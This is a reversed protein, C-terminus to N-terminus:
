RICKGRLTYFVKEVADMFEPLLDLGLNETIQYEPVRPLPLSHEEVHGFEDARWVEELQVTFAPPLSPPLILAVKEGGEKWFAIWKSWWSALTAPSNEQLVLMQTYIHELCERLYEFTYIDGGIGYEDILFGLAYLAYRQYALLAEEWRGAAFHVDGRAAQIRGLAEIDKPDAKLITEEARDAAQASKVPQNWTAYLGALWVSIWGSYWDETGAKERYRRVLSRDGINKAQHNLQDYGQGAQYFADAASQYAAEARTDHPNAAYYAEAVYNQILGRLHLRVPDDKPTNHLNLRDTLRSLVILTEDVWDVAGHQRRQPVFCSHFENLLDVIKRSRSSLSVNKLDELLRECFPFDIYEGWWFFADLYRTAIEVGADPTAALHHLWGQSLTQWEAMEYHHLREWVSEDSDEERKQMQVGYWAAASHHITEVMRADTELLLTERYHAVEPHVVLFRGEDKAEIFSLKKLEGWAAALDGRSTVPVIAEWIDELLRRNFKQLVCAADIVSKMIPSRSIVLDIQMAALEQIQNSGTQTEPQKLFAMEGINEPGVMQLSDVAWEIQQPDGDFRAHLRADLGLALASPGLRTNIYKRTEVPSFRELPLVFAEQPLFSNKEDTHSFIIKCGKLRPLLDTVIWKELWTERIHCFDDFVILITEQVIKAVLRRAVVETMERRIQAQEFPSNPRNLTTDFEVEGLGLKIGVIDVEPKLTAKRVFHGIRSVFKSAQGLNDPMIKQIETLVQTYELSDTGWIDAAIDLLLARYSAQAEAIANLKDPTDGEQYPIPKFKKASLDVWAHKVNGRSRYYHLLVTTKGIGHVGNLDAAWIQQSSRLFDDLAQVTKERKVFHRIKKDPAPM